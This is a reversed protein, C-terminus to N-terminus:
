DIGIKDLGQSEPVQFAIISRIKCEQKSYRRNKFIAAIFDDGELWVLTVGTGNAPV